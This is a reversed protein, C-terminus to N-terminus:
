RVMYNLSAGVIAAIKEHGASNPHLGDPMYQSRVESLSPDMGSLTFLDIVPVDYKDCVEKIADVYDDLSYGRGNPLHDYTFATGLMKSTGFGYRHTPTMWVLLADPHAKQIGPIIVNLAGYFSVDETDDITGMPTEHGYDNTGMYITIIDSDPISKYRNILPSNGTKYDSTASVCSGAVGMGTMSELELTDDLISWYTKTTGSGATISDGVCTVKKGACHNTYGFSWGLCSMDALSWNTGSGYLIPLRTYFGNDVVGSADEVATSTYYFQINADEQSFLSLYEGEKLTVEPFYIVALQKSAAPITATVTAIVEGSTARYSPVKMVTVTQSTKNTFFAATNIPKGVLQSYAPNTDAIAWGRGGTNCSSTFKTKNKTHDIYWTTSIVEHEVSEDIYIDGTVEPINIIGTSADFSTSTIDIGGM